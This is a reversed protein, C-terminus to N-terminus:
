IETMLYYSLSLQRFGLIITMLLRTLWYSKSYLVYWGTTNLPFHAGRSANRVYMKRM